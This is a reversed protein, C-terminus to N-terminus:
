DIILRQTVIDSMLKNKAEFIYRWLTSMKNLNIIWLPNIYISLWTKMPRVTEHVHFIDAAQFYYTELHRFGLVSELVKLAKTLTPIAVEILPLVREFPTTGKM